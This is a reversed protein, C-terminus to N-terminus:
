IAMILVFHITLMQDKQGLRNSFRLVKSFTGKSYCFRTQLYTPLLISQSKKIPTITPFKHSATIQCSVIPFGEIERCMETVYFLCLSFLVCGNLECTRKQFITEKRQSETATESYPYFLQQTGVLSTAQPPKDKPTLSPHGKHRVSRSLSTKKFSCRISNHCATGWVKKRAVERM